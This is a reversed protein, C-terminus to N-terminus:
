RPVFAAAFSVADNMVNKKFSATIKKQTMAAM